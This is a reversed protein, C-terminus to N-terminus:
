LVRPDVVAPPTHVTLVYGRERAHPEPSLHTCSRSVTGADTHRLFKYLVARIDVSKKSLCIIAYTTNVQSYSCSGSLVNMRRGAPCTFLHIQAVTMRDFGGRGLVWRLAERLDEGVGV